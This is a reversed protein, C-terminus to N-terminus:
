KKLASKPAVKPKYKARHTNRGMRDQMKEVAFRENNAKNERAARKESRNEAQAVGIILLSAAVVAVYKFALHVM